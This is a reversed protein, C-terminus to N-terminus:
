VFFVCVFVCFESSLVGGVSKGFWVAKWTKGVDRQKGKPSTRHQWPAFYELFEEALFVNSPLEAMM